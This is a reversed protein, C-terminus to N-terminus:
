PKGESRRAIVSLAPVLRRPVGTWRYARGCKECVFDSIAANPNDHNVPTPALLWGCNCVPEDQVIV